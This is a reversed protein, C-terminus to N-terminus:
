KMEQALDACPFQQLRQNIYQAYREADKIMIGESVSFGNFLSMELIAPLHPVPNEPSFSDIDCWEGKM